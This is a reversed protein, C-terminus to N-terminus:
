RDVPTLPIHLTFRSGQGPTSDVQLRGGHAGIVDRAITLGLGMGQPFRRGRQGRYFPEFVRTQEEPGIGPGTDSVRIWLEGGEAGAEVRISGGDPTYKVANSLLNGLAQAMRDPDFEAQPLDPDIHADWALGKRLAAERWSAIIQPLWVAVDVRARSLELPGLV